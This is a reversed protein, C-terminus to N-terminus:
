VASDFHILKKDNGFKVAVSSGARGRKQRNEGTNQNLGGGGAKEKYMPKSRRETEETPGGGQAGKSSKKALLRTKGM